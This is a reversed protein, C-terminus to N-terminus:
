ESEEVGAKQLDAGVDIWFCLVLCSVDNSHSPQGALKFDNKTGSSIDDVFSGMWGM